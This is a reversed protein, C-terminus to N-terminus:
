IADLGEIRVDEIMGTGMVETMHNDGRFCVFCSVNM